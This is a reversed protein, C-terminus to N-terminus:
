AILGHRRLAHAIGDEEPRGTVEDAVARIVEPANGMAVGVGAHQLMEADNYSDGLALCRALDLGFHATIVDIGSAKTVGRLSMEGSHSGLIEVSSPVVEFDPFEEMVAELPQAAGFYIVKTVDAEQAEDEPRMAEIFGFAQDTDMGWGRGLEVLQDKVSQSCYNADNAQLFYPVSTGFHAQVHEIQNASLYQASLIVGDVEVYSGSAGVLGDFGIDWM